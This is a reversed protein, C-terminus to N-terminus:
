AFLHLKLSVKSSVSKLCWMFSPASSWLAVSCCARSGTQSQVWGWSTESQLEGWWIVKSKVAKWGLTLILPLVSHSWLALLFDKEGEFSMATKRETYDGHGGADAGCLSLLVWHLHPLFLHKAFISETQGTFVCVEAGQLPPVAAM